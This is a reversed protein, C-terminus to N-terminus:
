AAIKEDLLYRKVLLAGIAEAAMPRAILYGQVENCGLARLIALQEANEVGEAVVEMGLAHAMSVIAQFFVTGEKSRGLEATFARDVKLVDMKMRQLQSLSSYGTGFDDVHLKIGLARI